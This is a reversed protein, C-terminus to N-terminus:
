AFMPRIQEGGACSDPANSGSTMTFELRKWELEIFSRESARQEMARGGRITTSRMTATSYSMLAPSLANRHDGINRICHRFMNKPQLSNRM